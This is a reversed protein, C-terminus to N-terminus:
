RIEVFPAKEPRLLRGCMGRFAWIRTLRVLFCSEFEGYNVIAKLNLTTPRGACMAGLCGGADASQRGKKAKCEPRLGPEWELQHRFPPVGDAALDCVAGAGRAPLGGCVRLVRHARGPASPNSTAVAVLFDKLFLQRILCGYGTEIPDGTLAVHLGFRQMEASHSWQLRGCM